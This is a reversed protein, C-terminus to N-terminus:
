VRVTAGGTGGIVDSNRLIGRSIFRRIRHCNKEATNPRRQRTLSGEHRRFKFIRAAAEIEDAGGDAVELVDRKAGKADEFFRILNGAFVCAM